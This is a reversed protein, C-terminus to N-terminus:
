QENDNEQPALLREVEESRTMSAADRGDQPNKYAPNAGRKLLLRVMPADGNLAAHMLPTNGDADATDVAAGRELLLEAAKLKGNVAAAHLATTGSCLADGRVNSDLLLRLAELQGSEAATQLAALFDDAHAAANPLSLARELMDTRGAKAALQLLSEDNESRAIFPYEADDAPWADVMTRLAAADERAAEDSNTTLVWAGCGLILFFVAWVALMPAGARHALARSLALVGNVLMGVACLTMVWAAVSVAAAEGADASYRVHVALMIIVALLLVPNAFSKVSQM